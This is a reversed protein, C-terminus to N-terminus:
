NGLSMHSKRRSLSRDICPILGMDMANAPPDEVMPSWSTQSPYSKGAKLLTLDCDPGQHGEAGEREEDQESAWEVGAGHGEQSAGLVESSWANASSRKRGEWKPYEEWEHRRREVRGDLKATLGELNWIHLLQGLLLAEGRGAENKVMISIVMQCQTYKKYKNYYEKVLWSIHKRPVPIQTQVWPM